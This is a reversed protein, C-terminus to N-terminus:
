ASKEFRGMLEARELIHGDILNLIEDKTAGEGLGLKKDLAYIKFYYRHERDPPCPGMYRNEGGTNKGLTGFPETGEEIAVTTPEIDYVVWHVWMRDKRIQEPVDPDDLILVLSKAEVPVDTLQLPPNLEEGQCTYKPPIKGNHQFASSTLKM